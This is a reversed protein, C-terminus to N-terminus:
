KLVKVSHGAVRVVYMGQKLSFSLVAATATHSDVLRGAADWVQVQEGAKVGNVTVVGGQASIAIRNAAADQISNIGEGLGNGNADAVRFESVTVSGSLVPASLKVFRAESNLSLVADFPFDAARLVRITRWGPTMDANRTEQIKFEVNGSGSYDAKVRIAPSTSAFFTMIKDGTATIVAKDATVDGSVQVWHPHESVASQETGNEREFLAVTNFPKFNLPLIAAARGKHTESITELPGFDCTSFEFEEAFTKTGKADTIAGEPFSIVYDSNVDLAEYKVTLTNGAVDVGVIRENNDGNITAGGKYAIDQNFRFIMSGDMYSIKEAAPYSTVSIPENVDVPVYKEILVDHVRFQNGNGDIKFIVKGTGQYTYTHKFNKKAAALTFSTATSETGDVITKLNFTKSNTNSNGTWITIKAPGTVEPLQIYGSGSTFEVCRATAGADEASYDGTLSSASFSVIRASSSGNAGFIMGAVTKTTNGNIINVNSGSSYASAFEAPTTNFDTYFLTGGEVTKFSWITGKTTGKDNKANVRWYYTKNPELQVNYEVSKAMTTSIRKLSDPNANTGFYVLYMVTGYYNQTTNEWSLTVGQTATGVESNDAPSPNVCLNPASPDPLTETAITAYPSELGNEGYAKVRFYYNTEKTLGTAVYSTTNAELRALEAFTKNDTSLEVIYGQENDANDTWSFSLSELEQNTVNLNSPGKVYPYAKDISFVYNEINAYGNAAIAAADADNNPNLGHATEWEDPIGDGDTDQPKNGPYLVGTGGHPLSKEDSIGDTSGLTGFSSMMDVLYKDVEDRVPLSPGVSDIMWQLAAEASMKGAIEPFAKPLDTIEGLTARRLGGSATYEADTIATGNLQGDKNSDYYNGAGFFQFNENGESLPSTNANWPGKVFYNNEIDAWSNGASERGMLYCGGGGWNYVVNNVFQNLGKVKPNRTKNEIYLNRYLTVGGSTQMLGGCSHTQLGQGIISNQITIDAPETGKNDWSISFCEDRGWLVSLHDFIMNRGNAVGAADKGSTGGKGMRFRMHRVIINDAGSFSVRDGYVQVGEGPATQGLITLNKSFVLGSSLKIVGCVDFVVIRNPQSVADRLSGTGSDNLNTVHFIAGGRGGTAFRGFGEAGPFALQQAGAVMSCLLLLLCAFLKRTKMTTKIIKTTKTFRSAFTRM